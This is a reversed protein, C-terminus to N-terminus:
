YPFDFNCRPLKRLRVMLAVMKCDLNLFKSDKTQLIPFKMEGMSESLGLRPENQIVFPLLSLKDGNNM